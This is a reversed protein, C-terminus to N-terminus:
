RDRSQKNLMAIMMQTKQAVNNDYGAASLKEIEAIINEVTIEAPSRETIPIAINWHGSQHHGSHIFLFKNKHKKNHITIANRNRSYQSSNLAVPIQNILGYKENAKRWDIVSAPNAAKYVSKNTYLSPNMMLRSLQNRTNSIFLGPYNNLLSRIVILQQNGNGASKGQYHLVCAGASRPSCHGNRAISVLRHTAM